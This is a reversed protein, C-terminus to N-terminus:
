KSFLIKQNIEFTLYKKGFSPLFNKQCALEQLEKQLICRAVRQQSLEKRRPFCSQTKRIMRHSMLVAWPRGRPFRDRPSM